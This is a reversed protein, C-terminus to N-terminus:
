TPSFLFKFSMLSPQAICTQSCWDSLDGALQGISQVVDILVGIAVVHQTPFYVCTDVSWTLSLLSEKFLM